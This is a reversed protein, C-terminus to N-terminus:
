LSPAALVSKATHSRLGACTLPVRRGRGTVTSQVPPQSPGIVTRSPLRLVRLLRLKSEQLEARTVLALRAPRSLPPSDLHAALVLWGRPVSSGLDGRHVKSPPGGRQAVGGGLYALGAM